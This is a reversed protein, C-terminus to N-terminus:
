AQFVFVANRRKGDAMHILEASSSALNARSTMNSDDGLEVRSQQQMRLAPEICIRGEGVIASVM